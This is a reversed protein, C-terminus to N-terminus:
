SKQKAPKDTAIPEFQSLLRFRERAEALATQGSKTLAIAVPEVNHRDGAEGTAGDIGGQSPEFVGAEDSRLCQCEGSLMM